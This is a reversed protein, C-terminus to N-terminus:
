VIFGCLSRRIRVGSIGAAPRGVLAPALASPLVARTGLLLQYCERREQGQDVEVLLHLLGPTGLRGDVPLLEEAGALALGAIPRGKGAFWRQRPLWDLLYPTLARLLGPPAVAAARGHGPRDGPAPFPPPAQTNTTETPRLRSTDSM